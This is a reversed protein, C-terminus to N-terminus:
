LNIDFIDAADMDWGGNHMIACWVDTLPNHPLLFSGGGRECVRNEPRAGSGVDTPIEPPRLLVYKTCPWM